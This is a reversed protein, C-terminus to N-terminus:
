FEENIYNVYDEPTMEEEKEAPLAPLGLKLAALYRHNGDLLIWKKNTTLLASDITEAYAAHTSMRSLKQKLAALGKQFRPTIKAILVPEFEKGNRYDNILKDIWRQDLDENDQFIYLDDLKVKRGTVEQIRM